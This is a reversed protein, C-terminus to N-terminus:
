HSQLESTHEESRMLTLGAIGIMARRTADPVRLRTETGDPQRVRVGFPRRWRVGVPLGRFGVGWEVAIPQVEFGGAAITPMGRLRREIRVVRGRNGRAM